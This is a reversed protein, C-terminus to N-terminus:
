YIESYEKVLLKWETAISSNPFPQKCRKHWYNANWEDGEIRHLLAHVRDYQLTGEKKQAISHAKEWEDIGILYLAELLEHNSKKSKLEELTKAEIKVIEKIYNPM